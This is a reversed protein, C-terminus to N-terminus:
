NVTQTFILKQTVSANFITHFKDLSNKRGFDQYSLGPEM